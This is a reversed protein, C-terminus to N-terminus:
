GRSIQAGNVGVELAKAFATGAVFQAIPVDNGFTELAMSQERHAPGGALAEVGTVVVRVAGIAVHLVPAAVDIEDEPRVTAIGEVVGPRAVNQFSTVAVDRAPVTVAGLMHGVGVGQEGGALIETAGVQAQGPRADVAMAVDVAALQGAGAGDAVTLLRPLGGGAEGVVGRGEGECAAVAVDGARFAVFGEVGRLGRGAGDAEHSECVCGADVTVGIGVGATEAGAAGVTVGGVAPPRAGGGVEVVGARAIGQVAAVGRDATLRAVALVADTGGEGGAGVTVVVDVAGGGRTRPKGTALIAVVDLAEARSVVGDVPVSGAVKGEGAAVQGRGAAGAVARRLSRLPGEGQDEVVAGAGIAVVIGVTRRRTGCEAGARAAVIDPAPTRAAEIMGGQAVGERAGVCARGAGGAVRRRRAVAGRRRDRDERRRGSGAGAAVGVDMQALEREVALGGYMTVTAVVGDVPEGLAEVVVAVATEGQAAAVLADGALTTVSGEFLGAGARQGEFGQLRFAGGTM